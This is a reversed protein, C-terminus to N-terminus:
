LNTYFKLVKEAVGFSLTMGAGSLANVITVGPEPQVIFETKGPLKAYVGHWKEAIALSPMRAFTQLYGLIYDNIEEKDFPEPNLGYEHSDGIVVEGLANQSAMVHIGWQPFYPTEAAIRAKLVSLSQCHAFAAYHTLTLGGCLPPGLRWHNPQPATRMMQLKVKTIDSALYISPYLTELDAGSCVFIHDAQWREGGAIFQPHRIETVVKGFQFEVGYGKALFASLKQIAERPDVVMETPSWLAGLLRDTIAAPSKEAVQTPTLLKVPRQSTQTTEVFEELVDMEDQRYALHLSGIQDIHFGAQPAVETWITRSRMAQEYLEGDPQGIPWVMGFNRISAGVAYPNREFVAVKLGRKAIALAHALGVIGAGVIAVDVRNLQHEM